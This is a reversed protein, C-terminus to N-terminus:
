LRTNLGSWGGGNIAEIGNSKLISSAQASRMGSACCAIVPKGLKKIENIKDSITNLPINKSGKIHGGQFEGVTRVDIIVAGKRIFEKIRESKSGLGLFRLLGM